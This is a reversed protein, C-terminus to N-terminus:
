SSLYRQYSQIDRMASEHMMPSKQSHDRQNMGEKEENIGRRSSTHPSPSSKDQKPLVVKMHVMGEIEIEREVEQWKPFM